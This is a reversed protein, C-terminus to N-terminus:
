LLSSLRYHSKIHFHSSQRSYHYVYVILQSSYRLIDCSITFVLPKLLILSEEHRSMVFFQRFRGSTSFVIPTNANTCHLRSFSTGRHAFWRIGLVSASKWTEVLVLPHRAHAGTACQPNHNRRTAATQLICFRPYGAWNWAISDDVWSCM